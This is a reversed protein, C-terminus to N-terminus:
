DFIHLDEIYGVVRPTRSSWPDGVKQHVIQSKDIGVGQIDGDTLQIGIWAIGKNGDQYAIEQPEDCLILGLRGISCYALAGRRPPLIDTM